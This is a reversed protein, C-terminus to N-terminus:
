SGMGSAPAPSNAVEHATAICAAIVSPGGPVSACAAVAATEAMRAAICGFNPGFSAFNVGLANLAAKHNDPMNEETLSNQEGSTTLLNSKILIQRIEEQQESSLKSVTNPMVFTSM